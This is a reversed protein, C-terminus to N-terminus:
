LAKKAPHADGWSLEWIGNPGRTSLPAIVADCVLEGTLLGHDIGLGNPAVSITVSDKRLVFGPEIKIPTKDSFGLARTKELLYGLAYPLLALRPKSWRWDMEADWYTESINSATEPTENLVQPIQSLPLFESRLTKAEIHSALSEFYPRATLGCMSAAVQDVRFPIISSARKFPGQEPNVPIATIREQWTDSGDWILVSEDFYRGTFNAEPTGPLVQVHRRRGILDKVGKNAIVCCGYPPQVSGFDTEVLLDLDGCTLAGRAYSGFVWVRKISGTVSGVVIRDFMQKLPANVMSSKDLTKCIDTLVKTLKERPVRVEADPYKAASVANSPFTQVPTPTM